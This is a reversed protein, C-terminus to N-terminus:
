DKNNLIIETKDEGIIVNNNYSSCDTWYYYLNDKIIVKKEFSTGINRYLNVNAKVKFM